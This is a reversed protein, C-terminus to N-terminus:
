CILQNQAPPVVVAPPVQFEAWYVYAWRNTTTTTKTFRIRLDAYDTISDAEAGALVLEFTGLPTTPLGVSHSAIITTGQRLEVTWNSLGGIRKARYRLVHGTSSQPDVLTGLATEYSSTVTGSDSGSYVYDSDSDSYDTDDIRQYLNTTAGDNTQWNAERLVDSAPRAFQDTPTPPQRRLFRPAVYARGARAM